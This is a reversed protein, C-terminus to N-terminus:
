SSIWLRAAPHAECSRQIDWLYTVAGEACGWGNEPNEERLSDLNNIGWRVARRLLGILKIGDKGNLDRLCLHEDDEVQIAYYDSDPNQKLMERADDGMWNAETTQAANTLCRTWMKSVNSTYNGCRGGAIEIAAAHDGQLEPHEDSFYPELYALEVGGTDVMMSFNYSM